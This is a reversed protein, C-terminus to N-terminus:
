INCNNLQNRVYYAINVAIYAGTTYKVALYQSINANLGGKKRGMFHTSMMRLKTLEHKFGM